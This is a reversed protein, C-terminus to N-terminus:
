CRRIRSNSGPISILCRNSFALSRTEATGTYSQTPTYRVPQYRAEIPADIGRADIWEDITDKIREATRDAVHEIRERTFLDRRTNEALEREDDDIRHAEDDAVVALGRTTVVVLREAPHLTEEEVAYARRETLEALVFALANELRHAQTLLERLAEDRRTRVEGVDAHLDELHPIVLDVEAVFVLLAELLRVGLDRARLAGHLHLLDADGAGLGVRLLFLELEILFVLLVRAVNLVERAIILVVRATLRHDARPLAHGRMTDAVAPERARAHLHRHARRHGTLHARLHARLLRTRRLRTCRRIELDTM